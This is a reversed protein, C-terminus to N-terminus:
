KATPSGAADADIFKKLSAEVRQDRETNHEESYVTRVAINIQVIVYRRTFPKM